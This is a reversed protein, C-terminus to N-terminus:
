GNTAFPLILQLAEDLRGLGALAKAEFLATLDNSLTRRLAPLLRLVDDWRRWSEAELLRHFRLLPLTVLFFLAVARIFLEMLYLAVLFRVAWDLSCNLYAVGLVLVDLLVNFKWHRTYSRGLQLLYCQLPGRTCDEVLDRATVTGSLEIRPAGHATLDDTHLVIRECGRDHLTQIAAKASDAELM